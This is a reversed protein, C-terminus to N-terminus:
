LGRLFEEIVAHIDEGFSNETIASEGGDVPIVVGSIYTSLDSALFLAANAIDEATGFRGMAQKSGLRADIFRDPKAAGRDGDSTNFECM